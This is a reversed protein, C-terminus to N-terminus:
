GGPREFHVVRSRTDLTVRFRSLLGLGIRPIDTMGLGHAAPDEPVLDTFELGGIRVQQLPQGPAGAHVLGFGGATDLLFTAPAGNITGDVSLGGLRMSCPVTAALTEPNPTYPADAALRLERRPFDFQVTRFAQLLRMGFAFPVSPHGRGLPGLSGRAGRAFVLPVELHVPDLRFKDGACLYGPVTDKVHAPLLYFAPNNLPVLGMAAAAPLAAWVESSSTDVLARYPDPSRERFEIIPAPSGRPSVFPLVCQQNPHPRYAGQFVPGGPSDYVTLFYRRPDQARQYFGRIEAPTLATGPGPQEWGSPSACGALGACGALVLLAATSRRPRNM